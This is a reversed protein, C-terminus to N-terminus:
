CSEAKIIASILEDKRLRSSGTIGVGKALPRLQKTTMESLELFREGKLPVEPEPESLDPIVLEEVSPAAGKIATAPPKAGVFEFAKNIQKATYRSGRGQGVASRINRATRSNM